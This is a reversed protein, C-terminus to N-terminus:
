RSPPIAGPIWFRVPGYVTSEAIWAQRGKSEQGYDDAPLQAQRSTSADADGAGTPDASKGHAEQPAQPVKPGTTALNANSQAQELSEPSAANESRLAGNADKDEGFGEDPLVRQLARRAHDRVIGNPDALAGELAVRAQEGGIGALADVAAVRVVLPSAWDLARRALAPVAREDGYRGLAAAASRLVEADRATGLLEILPVIARPETLMESLIQIALGARTPEFHRLEAILKDVYDEGSALLSHGCAPCREAPVPMEAWCQSCWRPM